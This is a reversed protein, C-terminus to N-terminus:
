FPLSDDSDIIVQEPSENIKALHEELAKRMAVQFRGYAADDLKIFPSYGKGGDPKEYEKSPMSFSFQGKSYFITISKIEMHWADIKAACFGYLNGKSIKRFETIEIGM